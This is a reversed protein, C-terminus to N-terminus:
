VLLGRITPLYRCNLPWQGTRQFELIAQVSTRRAIIAKKARCFRKWARQIIRLWFTKLITVLENTSLLICQGIEPKIYNQRSVINKYNRIHSHTTYYQQTSMEEYRSRMYHISEDITISNNNNNSNNSNNNNNNSNSNSNSTIFYNINFNHNNNSDYNIPSNLQIMKNDNNAYYISHVLYHPGFQLIDSGHIHNNQIDCILLNFKNINSM